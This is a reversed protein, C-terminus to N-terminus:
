GNGGIVDRALVRHELCGSLAPPEVLLLDGELRERAEAARAGVDDEGVVGLLRGLPEALIPQDLGPPLRELKRPEATLGRACAHVDQVDQVKLSCLLTATDPAMGRSRPRKIPLPAFHASERLAEHM